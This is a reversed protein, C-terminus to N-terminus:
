SEVPRGDAGIFEYHEFLYKRVATARTKVSDFDVYVHRGAGSGCQRINSVSHGACGAMHRLDAARQLRVVKRAPKDPVPQPIEGPLKMAEAMARSHKANEAVIDALWGKGDAKHKAATKELFAADDLLWNIADIREQNTAFDTITRM